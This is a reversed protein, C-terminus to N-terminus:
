ALTGLVFILEKHTSDNQHHLIQVVELGAATAYARMDAETWVKIKRLDMNDEVITEQGDSSKQSVVIHRNTHWVNGILKHMPWTERYMIGPFEKSPMLIPESPELARGLQEGGDTLAELVSIYARGTTPKLVKAIQEFFRHGQAPEHFHCISGCAFVIMDIIGGPGGAPNQLAPLSVLDEASGLVWTIQDVHAPDTLSRARDLMHQENDLGLFHVAPQLKGGQEQQQQQQQQQATALGHTIRGSGTGVDLVRVPDDSSNRAVMEALVRSYLEVDNWTGIWLDYYEALYKSNYCTAQRPHAAQDGTPNDNPITM